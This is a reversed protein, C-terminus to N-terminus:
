ARKIAANCIGRVTGGDREEIGDLETDTKNKKRRRRGGNRRM